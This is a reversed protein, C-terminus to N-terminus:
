VPGGATVPVVVTPDDVGVELPAAGATGSAVGLAAPGSESPPELERLAVVGTRRARAAM